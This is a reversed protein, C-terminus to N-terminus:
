FATGSRGSTAEITLLVVFTSNRIVFSSIIVLGSRRFAERRKAMPDNSSGEANPMRAEDNMILASCWLIVIGGYGM